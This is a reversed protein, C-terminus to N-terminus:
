SMAIRITNGAYNEGPSIKEHDVEEDVDYRFSKPSLLLSLYPHLNLNPLPYLALHLILNLRPTRHGRGLGVGGRERVRTAGQRQRLLSLTLPLNPNPLPNLAPALSLTPSSDSRQSTTDPRKHPRTIIKSKIKITSKMRKKITIKRKRKIKRKQRALFGTQTM